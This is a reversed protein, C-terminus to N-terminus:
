RHSAFVDFVALLPVDPLGLDERTKTAYQLLINDVYRIMSAADSWHNDTHTIEWTKDFEFHPHCRDTKGAYILSPPLLVGNASITILVTMERKDEIGVIEVQSSGKPALTWNSVPVFKCGTQDFNVIMDKPINHEEKLDHIQKVFATKLEDFNTPVKRAAKTGKRKVFKMRELLFKSWKRGLDLSHTLDPRFHKVYGKAASIAIRRNVIGGSGQLDKLYKQLKSDLEKPLRTPRGLQKHPLSKAAALESPNRKIAIFYAKKMGRVTSESLEHDLSLDKTFKQSGM